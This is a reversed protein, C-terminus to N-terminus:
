KASIVEDYQDIVRVAIRGRESVAIGRAKAWARIAHSRRRSAMTRMRHRPGPEGAHAHTTYAAIQQRLVAANGANLDIEYRQGDFAFRVTEVAPGGELDDVLAVTTRRAM